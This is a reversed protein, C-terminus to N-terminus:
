HPHLAAPLGSDLLHHATRGGVGGGGVLGVERESHNGLHRKRYTTAKTAKTCMGDALCACHTSNLAWSVLPISVSSVAM